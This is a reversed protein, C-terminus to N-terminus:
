VIRRALQFKLVNLGSLFVVWLAPEPKYKKVKVKGKRDCQIFACKRGTLHHYATMQMRNQETLGESFKYDFVWNLRMWEALLDPRGTFGYKHSVQEEAKHFILDQAKMWDWVPKAEPIVDALGEHGYIENNVMIELSEHLRTGRELHHEQVFDLSNPYILKLVDSVRPLAEM